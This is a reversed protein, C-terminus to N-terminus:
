LYQSYSPESLYLMSCHAFAPRRVLRRFADPLGISLSKGAILDYMIHVHNLQVSFLFRLQFSMRFMRCLLTTMPLQGGNLHPNRHSGERFCLACQLYLVYETM